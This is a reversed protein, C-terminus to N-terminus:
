CINLVLKRELLKQQIICWNLTLGKSQDLVHGEEKQM